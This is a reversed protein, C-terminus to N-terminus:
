EESEEFLIGFMVIVKFGRYIITKAAVDTCISEHNKTEIEKKM